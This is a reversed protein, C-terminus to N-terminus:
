RFVARFGTFCANGPRKMALDQGRDEFKDAPQGGTTRPKDAGKDAIKYSLYIVTFLITVGIKLWFIDFNEFFMKAVTESTALVFCRVM